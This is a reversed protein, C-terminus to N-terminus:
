LPPYLNYLVVLAICFLVMIITMPFNNKYIFYFELVVCLIFVILFLGLVFTM